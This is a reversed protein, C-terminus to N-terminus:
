LKKRNLIGILMSLNNIDCKKNSNQIDKKLRKLKYYM